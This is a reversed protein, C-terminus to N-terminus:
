SSVGAGFPLRPFQFFIAVDGKGYFFALAKRVNAGGTDGLAGGFDVDIARQVAGICGGIITIGIGIRQSPGRGEIVKVATLIDGKLDLAGRICGKDYM